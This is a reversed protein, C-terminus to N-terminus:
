TINTLEWAGESEVVRETPVYDLTWIHMSVPRELHPGDSGLYEGLAQEQLLHLQNDIAPSTTHCVPWALGNINLRTRNNYNAM